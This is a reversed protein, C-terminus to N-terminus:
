CGKAEWKLADEDQLCSSFMESEFTDSKVIQPCAISMDSFM